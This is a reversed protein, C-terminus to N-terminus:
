NAPKPGYLTQAARIDSDELNRSVFGEKFAMRTGRAGPHDLGLTHGIEHGAVLFLDRGPGDEVASWTLAPNFCVMAQRMATVRAGGEGASTESPVVNAYAIGKPHAQAGILVDAKAPDDVRRFQLDAVAAWQAFADRVAADFAAFTMGSTETLATPSVMTGCNQAQPFEVPDVVYGYSVVAGTGFSPSGWKVYAGDLKLLEFDGAIVSSSALVAVAAILLSKVRRATRVFVERGTGYAVLRPV